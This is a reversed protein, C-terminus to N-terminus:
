YDKNQNLKPHLRIENLPIPLYEYKANPTNLLQTGYATANLSRGTLANIQSKNNKVNNVLLGFRTLDYWRTNQEGALERWREELLKKIFEGQDLSEPFDPVFNKTEEFDKFNRISVTTSADRIGRFASIRNYYKKLTDSATTTAADGTLTVYRRQSN